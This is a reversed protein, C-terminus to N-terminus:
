TRSQSGMSFVIWSIRWALISSHTVKGKELLRGLGPISGLDGARCTSEKGVSSAAEPFSAQKGSGLDSPNVYCQWCSGGSTSLQPCAPGRWESHHCCRRSKGRRKGLDCPGSLTQGPCCPKLVCQQNIKRNVYHIFACMRYGTNWDQSLAEHVTVRLLDSVRGGGQNVEKYFPYLLHM